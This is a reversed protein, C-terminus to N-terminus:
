KDSNLIEDHENVVTSLKHIVRVGTCIIAILTTCILIKM